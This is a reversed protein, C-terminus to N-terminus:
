WPVNEHHKHSLSVMAENFRRRPEYDLPRKMSDTRELNWLRRLFVVSCQVLIGCFIDIIKQLQIDGPGQQPTWRREDERSRGKGKAGPRDDSQDGFRLRTLILDICSRTPM